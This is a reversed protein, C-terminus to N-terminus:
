LLSWPSYLESQQLDWDTCACLWIKLMYEYAVLSKGLIFCWKGDGNNQTTVNHSAISSLEKEHRQVTSEKWQEKM